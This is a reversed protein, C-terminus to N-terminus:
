SRGWRSASRFLWVTIWVAFALTLGNIVWGLFTTSELFAPVDQLALILWAVAGARAADVANKTTPRPPRPPADLPADTPDTM